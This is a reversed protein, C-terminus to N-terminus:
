NLKFALDVIAKILVLNLSFWVSTSRWSVVQTHISLSCMTQAGKEENHIYPSPTQTQTSGSLFYCFKVASETHVSPM